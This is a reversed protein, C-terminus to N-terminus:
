WMSCRLVFPGPLNVFAISTPISLTPKILFLRLSSFCDSFHGRRQDEGIPEFAIDIMSSSSTVMMLLCSLSSCASLISSTCSWNDSLDDKEQCSEMQCFVEFSSQWSSSSLKARSEEIASVIFDSRNTWDDDCTRELLAESERKTEGDRRTM